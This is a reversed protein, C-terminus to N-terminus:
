ESMVHSLYTYSKQPLRSGRHQSRIIVNTYLKMNRRRKPTLIDFKRASVGLQKEVAQSISWLHNEFRDYQRLCLCGEYKAPM